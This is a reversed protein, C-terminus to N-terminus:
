QSDCRGASVCKGYEENTVEMKDMCFARSIKVKKQPEENDECRSIFLLYLCLNKETNIRLFRPSAVGSDRHRYGAKQLGPIKSFDKHWDSNKMM